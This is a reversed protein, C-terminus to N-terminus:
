DNVITCAYVRFSLIRSVVKLRKVFPNENKFLLNRRSIEFERVAIFGKVRINLEKVRLYLFFCVQFFLKIIESM